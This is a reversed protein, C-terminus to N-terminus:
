SGNVCRLYKNILEECRTTPRYTLSRKYMERQIMEFVSDAVRRNWVRGFDIEISKSNIMYGKQELSDFHEKLLIM